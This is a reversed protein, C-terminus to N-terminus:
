VNKVGYRAHLHSLGLKAGPQRWQALQGPHVFPVARNQNCAQSAAGFRYKAGIANYAM